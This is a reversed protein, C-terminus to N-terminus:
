KQVIKFFNSIKGNERDFLDNQIFQGGSFLMPFYFYALSATGLMIVIKCMEPCLETCDEKLNSFHIM